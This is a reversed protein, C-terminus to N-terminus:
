SACAHSSYRALKVPDEDGDVKASWITRGKFYNILECNKLADMDRAWIVKAADIDAENYVWEAEFSHKPGYGVLVLHQGPQGRLQELLAARQRHLSLEKSHRLTQVVNISLVTLSLTPVTWLMIKGIRPSRWRWLRMAQIIFFYNLPIIPAFYHLNSYTEAAIGIGFIVYALIAFRAWKDRLMWSVLVKAAGILPLSTINGALLFYMMWVAFTNKLLGALSQKERYSDLGYNLHFKRLEEHHYQPATRMNQWVFVPVTGYTEEHVQYPMRFASGTIRFNYFGMAVATLSLVICLPLLINKIALQIAPGTKSFLWFLSAVAVPLVLVLGEYPRSNALVAIGIALIAASIADRKQVLSRLGGLVLAGGTAAVAGGWYSQAWGGAIGLEPHIITLLAGFAAWRPSVWRGLMWFIAACMFGMSLWVGVIPYGTMIQGLALVLSQAPPYKSMYTPRNIIHISEFHMWMPHTPNTVRGHSFTDAALLYAFEDQYNPEPIGVLM